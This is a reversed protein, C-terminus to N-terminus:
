LFFQALELYRKTGTARYLKVLALEIEEHGSTDVKKDPGFVDAIYDAFKVAVDLLKRKGTAQHYAVAAEILHGACYLEHSQALHQWREKPKVLTWYTNLYGDAQQAAAIQDIVADTRKELDADRDSALTYAIGEIVKYVDSDNYLEGQHKGDELKGAVAFNKIRATIECQRLNAEVTVTRNTEIRPAWFGDTIHVDQFPVATLGDARAPVASVLALLVGAVPLLRCTLGNSMTPSRAPLVLRHHADCTGTVSM